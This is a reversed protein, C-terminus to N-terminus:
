EYYESTYNFIFFMESGNTKLNPLYFCNKKRLWSTYSSIKPLLLNLKNSYNNVIDDFLQRQHPITLNSM